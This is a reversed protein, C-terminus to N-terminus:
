ATGPARSDRPEIQHKWLDRAALVRTGPCFAETERVLGEVDLAQSEAEDTYRSSFHTVILTRAQMRAALEGTMRTTSHGWQLAKEGRSADYTAECVLLDCGRAPGVMASADCTDGLLAIVRGPRPPDMVEEPRVLRGHATTVPLGRQLEGFHPGAAVGLASARDPHFRGPREDERLCYGFCSIRHVLPHASLRWGEYSGLELAGGPELEVIDLAFPLTTETIRLTCELLDRVGRPGVLRVPDERGNTAMTSLVGPLGFCHDGHLHTMLILEIRSAKLGARMLQHQTAEGCDLLWIGGHDFSLAQATVNRTRTPVGASTGLFTLHV